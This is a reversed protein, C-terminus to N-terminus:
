PQPFMLLKMNVIASDLAVAGAIGSGLPLDSVYFHRSGAGPMPDVEIPVSQSPGFPVEFSSMALRLGRGDAKAVAEKRTWQQYFAFRRRDLNSIAALELNETQTFSHQAVEPFQLSLDIHEVDVGALGRRRLAILITHRSHALNFAVEIGSLEPKGGASVALPVVRPELRCAAGLLRRLAGRGVVFQQRAEVQKRHDARAAEEASLVSHCAELLGPGVPLEIRWVQLEDDPLPPIADVTQWVSSMPDAPAM